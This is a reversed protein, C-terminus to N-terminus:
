WHNTLYWSFTRV